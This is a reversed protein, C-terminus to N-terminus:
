AQWRPRLAHGVACDALTAVIINCKYVKRADDAAIVLRGRVLPEGLALGKSVGPTLSAAIRYRQLIM